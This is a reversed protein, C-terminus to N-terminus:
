TRHTHHHTMLKGMGKVVLAALVISLAVHYFFQVLVLGEKVCM